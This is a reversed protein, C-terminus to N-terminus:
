KISKKKKKVLIKRPAAGMGPGIVKTDELIDLLRAARAYGVQLRRQLLSASAQGAEIVIKKAQSYLNDDSPSAKAGDSLSPENYKWFVKDVVSVVGFILLEPTRFFMSYEGEEVHRGDNTTYEIKRPKLFKDRFKNVAAKNAVKFFLANIGTNLVYLGSGSMNAGHYILFESDKNQFSMSQDNEHVKKYGLFTLLDGHFALSEKSGVDIKM